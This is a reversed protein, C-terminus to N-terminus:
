NINLKNFAYSGSLIFCIRYFIMIDKIKIFYKIRREEQQLLHNLYKYSDVLAYVVCFGYLIIFSLNLDLYCILCSCNFTFYVLVM